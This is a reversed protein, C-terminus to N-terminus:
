PGSSAEAPRNNFSTFGGRVGGPSHHKGMLSYLELIPGSQIGDLPTIVKLLRGERRIGDFLRRALKVYEPHTERSEAHYFREVFYSSLVAATFGMKRLSAATPFFKPNPKRAHHYKPAMWTKFRHGTRNLNPGYLTRFIVHRSPLHERLWSSCVMRTDNLTRSESFQAVMVASPTVCLGVLLLLILPRIRSPALESLSIIGRVIIIYIIPLVPMFFRIAKIGGSRAVVLYFATVTVILIPMLYRRAKLKLYLLLPVSGLFVLTAPLGLTGALSNYGAPLNWLPTTSFLYDFFHVQTGGLQGHQQHMMNWKLIDIFPGPKVLIWPTGILFGVSFAMIVLGTMFLWQKLRWRAGQRAHFLLVLCLPLLAIAGPYKCSAALGAFLAAAFFAARTPGKYARFTFLLSLTVMLTTMSDPMPITSQEVHLFSASLLLATLLATRDGLYPRGMIGLLLITMVGCLMSLLRATLYPKRGGSLTYIAALTNIQLTPYLYVGPDLDFTGASLKRSINRAAGVSQWADSYTVEPLGQSLGIGRHFLAYGAILVVLLYFIPPKLKGKGPARNGIDLIGM